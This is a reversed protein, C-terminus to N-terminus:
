ICCREMLEIQADNNEVIRESFLFKDHLCCEMSFKESLSDFFDVESANYENETIEYYRFYHQYVVTFVDQALVYRNITPLYGIRYRDNSLKVKDLKINACTKLWDSYIKAAKAVHFASYSLGGGNDKCDKALIYRYESEICDDSYDYFHQLFYKDFVQKEKLNNFILIQHFDPERSGLSLTNHTFLRLLKGEISDLLYYSYWFLPDRIEKVNYNKAEPLYKKLGDFCWLNTKFLTTDHYMFCLQYTHMEPSTYFAAAPHWSHQAYDSKVLKFEPFDEHYAYKDNGWDYNWKTLESLLLNM